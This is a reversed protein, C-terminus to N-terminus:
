ISRRVTEHVSEVSVFVGMERRIEHDLARERVVSLVFVVVGSACDM